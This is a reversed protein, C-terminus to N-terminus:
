RQPSSLRRATIVVPELEIIRVQKVEVTPTAAVAYPSGTALVLAATVALAFTTALATLRSIM